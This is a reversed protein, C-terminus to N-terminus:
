SLGLSGKFDLSLYCPRGVWLECTYASFWQHHQGYSWAGVQRTVEVKTLQSCWGLWCLHSYWWHVGVCFLCISNDSNLTALYWLQGSWHPHPYLQHPKHWVQSWLYSFGNLPSRCIHRWCHIVWDFLIYLFHLSKSRFRTTEPSSAM